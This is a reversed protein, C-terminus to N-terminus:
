IQLSKNRHFSLDSEPGQYGMTTPLQAYTPAAITLCVAGLLVILKSM